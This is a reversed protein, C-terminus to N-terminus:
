NMKKVVSLELEKENGEGGERQNKEEKNRKYPPSNKQVYDLAEYKGKTGLTKKELSVRKNMKRM